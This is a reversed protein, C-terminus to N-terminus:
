VGPGSQLLQPILIKKILQDDGLIRDLEQKLRRQITTLQPETLHKPEASRIVTNVSHEIRSRRARIMQKVKEEDSAAVLGSVRIHFTIFKGSMKNSPRCEALEVEAFEDENSVDGGEDPTGELVDAVGAAPAPSIAKVVFFVGVGQVAMLGAIMVIPILRSQKGTAKASEENEKEAAM